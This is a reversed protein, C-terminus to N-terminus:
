NARHQWFPSEPNKTGIFLNEYERIAINGNAFAEIQKVETLSELMVEDFMASTSEARDNVKLELLHVDKFKAAIGLGPALVAFADYNEHLYNISWNYDSTMTYVRNRSQAYLTGESDVQLFKFHDRDKSLWDTIREWHGGNDFSGYIGDHSSVLVNGQFEIMDDIVDTLKSDFLKHYTYEGTQLDVTRVGSIQAVHM